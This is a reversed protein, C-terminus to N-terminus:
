ILYRFFVYISCMVLAVFTLPLAIKMYEGFGIRYGERGAIGSVVVNASAGVLTANGGIDAGLALVWWLPVLPLGSIAGLDKILPIMTAVFPINDIIASFVASGWLVSMTTAIMNGGTLKLLGEALMRIAGVEELAVVLIFLGMFFFITTWEVEKLHEEPDHMTLLLMLAAGGLAITAGELHTAGHTFFGVLVIGLVFLAKKLLKVDSIAEKPNFKAITAQDEPTAVLQKRYIFVLLGITVTSVFLSIPALNFLFDNFTLGSASGILINPPDGILTATGGINSLLIAGILFPKPHIKLNHAVVFTVPIMLLVTTVNDLLASFVAVIVLLLIYIKIPNGKGVKTAWIAVYQFMGSHKAIGVIIMMGILLGLTNFDIGEIAKEQTVIGLLVLLGAGAMAIVTRHVKESIIIAYTVVFVVLTIWFSIGM